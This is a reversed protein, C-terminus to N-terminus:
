RDDTGGGLPLGVDDDHDETAADSVWADHGSTADGGRQEAV